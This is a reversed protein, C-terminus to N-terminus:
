VEGQERRRERWGSVLSWLSGFAIMALAALLGLGYADWYRRATGPRGGNFQEIPAGGDLGILMADVQGSQLYPLIMPGSQASSIVLFRADKRATETQEIWIRATEADDTLLIIVAFDSLHSVGQLVPTEWANEGNISTTKTTVPNAAFALVGAAGGPLYGLNVFQQGAQYYASAQTNELRMFQEALGPGTPTSAILSLRPAKQLIMHDILPATAAELEGALAANYDFILLVPANAPMDRQVYDELFAKTEPSVGFPVSNIQTGTFISGGVVVLLVIAIIWRLFRQSLMIPQTAIPKPNVEAALMQELMSAGSQQDESAQLKISYAKPISSPGVGPVAPLVGRLGALPGTEEMYQDTTATGEGTDSIVSEVPRMAQVWSPLEALSLDGEETEASEAPAKGETPKDTGSLWDPMEAAFLAEVDNTSLPEGEDDVFAPRVSAEQSVEETMFAPAEAEEHSGESEIAGESKSSLWDPMDSEAALQAEEQSPAQYTEEGLSTLWDPSEGEVAPQAVEQQPPTEAGKEDLSALWDPLGSEVAPQVDEQQPAAEISEEGLSALWDPMDGEVAPQTTGQPTSEAIEEGPSASWDPTDSEPLFPQLREESELRSAAQAPEDARMWDPLDSESAGKSEEDAGQLWAPLGTDIPSEDETSDVQFNSDSEFDADWEFDMNSAAPQGEASAPEETTRDALFASLQGEGSEATEGAGLDSIWGPLTSAESEEVDPTEEGLMNRLSALDDEELSSEEPITQAGKGRLDALWDPIEEDDKAQSQLGALLDASEEPSAEEETPAQEPEDEVSDRAQQRVERLWQPLVPELESTDKDTPEEGPRIPPQSRSLEDTLPKLRAECFQCVDLEAPNPKSCMPCKIEAM